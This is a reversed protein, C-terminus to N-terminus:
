GETKRKYVWAEEFDEEFRLKHLEIYADNESKFHGYVVRIVGNHVNIDTDKFGRDRLKQVFIEANSRKVQSALVLCYTKSTDTAPAQAVSDKKVETSDTQALATLSMAALLFTLIKKM